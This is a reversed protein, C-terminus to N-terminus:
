GVRRKEPAIAMVERWKLVNVQWRPVKANARKQRYHTGFEFDSKQGALRSMEAQRIERVISDRSMGLFAAAQEPSLWPQLGCGELLNSLLSVQHKLTQVEGELWLLKNTVNPMISREQTRRKTVPQHCTQM